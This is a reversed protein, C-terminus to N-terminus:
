SAWLVAQGDPTYELHGYGSFYARPQRAKPKFVTEVAGIITLSPVQVCQNSFHVTWVNPNGQQMNIRNFHVKFKRNKM